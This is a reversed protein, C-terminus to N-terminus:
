QLFPVNLSKVMAVVPGVPVPDPLLIAAAVAVVVWPDPEPEDLVEVGDAVPVVLDDPDVLTTPAPNIHTM